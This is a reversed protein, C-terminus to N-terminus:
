LMVVYIKFIIRFLTGVVVTCIFLYSCNLMIQLLVNWWLKTSAGYAFFILNLFRTLQPSFGGREACVWWTRPLASNGRRIFNRMLLLSLFPFLLMAFTVGRGGCAGMVPVKEVAFGFWFYECFHRVLCFFDFGPWAIEHNVYKPRGVHCWICFGHRCGRWLARARKAGSQQAVGVAATHGYLPENLQVCLRSRHTANFSYANGCGDDSDSDIANNINCRQSIDDLVHPM